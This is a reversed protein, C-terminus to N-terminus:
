KKTPRYSTQEAPEVVIQQDRFGAADEVMQKFQKVNVELEDSNRGVIIKSLMLPFPSKGTIAFDVYHNAIRNSDTLVWGTASPKRACADSGYEYILRVESEINYEKNKFFASWRNWHVFTLTPGFIHCGDVLDKMFKYKPSDSYIVRSLYFNGSLKHTPLSLQMCGGKTDDGYLRWMTLNNPETETCSMLFITNEDKNYINKDATGYLSKWLFDCDEKDNMGEMSFMRFSSNQLTAFITGITTFRYIQNREKNEFLQPVIQSMIEEETEETFHVSYSKSDFCLDELALSKTLKILKSEKIVSNLVMLVRNKELEVFDTEVLVQVAANLSLLSKKEDHTEIFKTGDTLFVYPVNFNEYTKRITEVYEQLASSNQVKKFELIAIPFNGRNIWLDGISFKKSDVGVIKPADMVTWYNPLQKKLEIRVESFQKELEKEM